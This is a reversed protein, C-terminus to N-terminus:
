LAAFFDEKTRGLSTEDVKELWREEYRKQLNECTNWAEDEIGVVVPLRRNLRTM